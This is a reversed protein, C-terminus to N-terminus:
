AIGREALLERQRGAREPEGRREALDAFSGAQAVARTVAVASRQLRALEAEEDARGKTYGDQWGSRYGDAYFWRAVQDDSATM